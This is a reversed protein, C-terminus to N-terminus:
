IATEHFYFTITSGIRDWITGGSHREIFILPGEDFNPVIGNEADDVPTVPADERSDVGVSSHLM